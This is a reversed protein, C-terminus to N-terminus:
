LIFFTVLAAMAAVLMRPSTLTNSGNHSASASTSSPMSGYTSTSNASSSSTSNDSSALNIEAPFKLPTSIASSLDISGDDKLVEPNAAL